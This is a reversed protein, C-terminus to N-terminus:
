LNRSFYYGISWGLYPRFKFITQKPIVENEPGAIYDEKYFQLYTGGGFYLETTFHKLVLFQRGLVIGLEPGKRQLDVTRPESHNGKQFDARKIKTSNYRLLGATYWSNPAIKTKTFYYRVSLGTTFGTSTIFNPIPPGEGGPMHWDGNRLAMQLEISYSNTLQKEIIFNPNQYIVDQLLLTKIVYGKSNQGNLFNPFLICILLIHKM